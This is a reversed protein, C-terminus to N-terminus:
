HYQFVRAYLDVGSVKEVDITVFVRVSIKCRASRTARSSPLLMWWITTPFGDEAIWQPILNQLFISPSTLTAPRIQYGREHQCLHSCKSM